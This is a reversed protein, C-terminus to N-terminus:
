VLVKELMKLSFGECECWGQITFWTHTVVITIPRSKSKILAISILNKKEKLPKQPAACIFGLGEDVDPGEVKGDNDGEKRGDADGDREGVIAGDFGVMVNNRKVVLAM